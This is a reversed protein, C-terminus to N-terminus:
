ILERRWNINNKVLIAPNGAFISNPPINKTVVSNAGVISNEEIIVGKLIMANRSLWVRNKIIIDKSLNIRLNTSNDLISHSDSSNIIIGKSFMCYKGIFVNKSETVSIEAYEITTFDGININCSERELIFEGSIRCNRGIHIKNKNGRIKISLNNIISNQEIIIQNDNGIIDFNFNYRLSNNVLENRMGTAYGNIHINDFDIKNIIQNADIMINKEFFSDSFIFSLGLWKMLLVDKNVFKSTNNIFIEYKNIDIKDIYSLNNGHFEDELLALIPFLLDDIHQESLNIVNSKIGYSELIDFYCLLSPYDPHKLFESIILNENFKVNHHNFIKQLSALNNEIDM